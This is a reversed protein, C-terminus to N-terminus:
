DSTGYNEIYERALPEARAREEASIEKEVKELLDAAESVDQRASVSLWAFAKVLDKSVVAGEYYMEGLALQAYPSGDQALTYYYGTVMEDHSMENTESAWPSSWLSLAALLVVIKNL